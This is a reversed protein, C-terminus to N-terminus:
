TGTVTGDSASGVAEAPDRQKRAVYWTVLPAIAALLITVAGRLEPDNLDSFQLGDDMLGAIIQVLGLAGLIVASITEAPRSM